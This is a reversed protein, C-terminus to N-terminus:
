ITDLLLYAQEISRDVAFIHISSVPPSWFYKPRWASRSVFIANQMALLISFFFTSELAGFLVVLGCSERSRDPSLCTFERIIPM